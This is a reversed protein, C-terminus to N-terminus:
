IQIYTPFENTRVGLLELIQFSQIGIQILPIIVGAPDPLLQTRALPTRDLIFARSRVM